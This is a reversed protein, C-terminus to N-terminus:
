QHPSSIVLLLVRFTSESVQTSPKIEAIGKVIYTSAFLQRLQANNM